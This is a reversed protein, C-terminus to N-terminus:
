RDRMVFPKGHSSNFVDITVKALIALIALTALTALTALIALIAHIALIALIAPIAHALNPPAIIKGRALPLASNKRSKRSLAPNCALILYFGLSVVM